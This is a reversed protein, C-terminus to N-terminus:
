YLFDKFISKLEESRHENIIKIPETRLYKLQAGNALVWNIMELNDHYVSIYICTNLILGRKVNIDVGRAIAFKLGELENNHVAYYISEYELYGWEAGMDLVYEAVAIQSYAIANMLAINLETQTCGDTFLEKIEELEGDGSFLEIQYKRDQEM